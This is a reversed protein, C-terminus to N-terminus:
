TLLSYLPIRQRMAQIWSRSACSNGEFSWVCYNDKLHIVLAQYQGHLGLYFCDKAMSDLEKVRICEGHRECLLLVITTLQEYYSKPTEGRKQHISCLEGILSQYTISRSYSNDLVDLIKYLKGRGIRGKGDMDAVQATRKPRGELADLVVLKIEKPSHGRQMLADVECRWDDNSIADDKQSDIFIPLSLKGWKTKGWGGREGKWRDWRQARDWYHNRNSTTTRHSTDSDNGADSQSDSGSLSCSGFSGESPELGFHKSVSAVSDEDPHQKRALSLDPTIYVSQPKQLEKSGELCQQYALWWAREQSTLEMNDFVQQEQQARSLTLTRLFEKANPIHAKGKRLMLPTARIIVPFGVLDRPGVLSRIHVASEDYTM